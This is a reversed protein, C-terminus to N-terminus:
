IFLFWPRNLQAHFTDHEYMHARIHRFRASRIKRSTLVIQIKKRFEIKVLWQYHDSISLWLQLLYISLIGVCKNNSGNPHITCGTYFPWEFTYLVFTKIVFQLKIFTLLIASHEPMRCYKQGANLSLRDQFGFKPRKSLPRKVCIKNYGGCVKNTPPISNERQGDTRGDTRGDTVSQKRLLEFLWQQIKM